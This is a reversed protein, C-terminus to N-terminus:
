LMNKEQSRGNEDYITKTHRIMVGDKDYSFEEILRGEEDYVNKFRSELNGSQYQVGEVELVGERRRFEDSDIVAHLEDYWKHIDIIESFLLKRDKDYCKLEVGEKSTM